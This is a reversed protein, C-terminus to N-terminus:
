RKTSGSHPRPMAWINRFAVRSTGDGHDQLSFPLRDPHVAYPKTAAFATPGIFAADRQVVVGNLRVTVRAPAALTGSRFRPRRFDIDLCHWRGPPLSANVLPPAQGYLAGAQGDPYTPNDFSDLIQVEYLGMLFVGSNGRYQWVGAPPDPTRYELHISVDGFAARTTILNPARASAALTGDAVQWLALQEGTFAAVSRGTFLRIAGPPPSHGTCEAMAPTVVPPQPRRLDHSRWPTGPIRPARLLADAWFAETWASKMAPHAAILAAVEPHNESLIAAIEDPTEAGAAGAMLLTLAISRIM